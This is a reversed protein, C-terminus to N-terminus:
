QKKKKKISHLMNNIRQTHTKNCICAFVEKLVYGYTVLSSRIALISSLWKLTKLRAVMPQWPLDM